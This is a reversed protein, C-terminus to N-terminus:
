GTRATLFASPKGAAVGASGFGIVGLAAPVLVPTLLLGAVIGAGIAPGRGNNPNNNPQQV